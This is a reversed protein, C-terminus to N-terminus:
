EFGAYEDAFHNYLTDVFDNLDVYRMPGIVGDDTEIDGTCAAENFATVAAKIVDPLNVFRRDGKAVSHADLDSEGDEVVFCNFRSPTEIIKDVFDDDNTEILYRM